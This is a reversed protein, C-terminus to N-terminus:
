LPFQFVGKPNNDRFEQITIRKAEPPLTMRLFFEAQKKEVPKRVIENQDNVFESSKFLPHELSQKELTKGSSDELRVELRNPANDAIAPKISGLLATTSVLTITSAGQDDVAITFAMGVVKGASGTQAEELPPHYIYRTPHCASTGLMLLLIVM